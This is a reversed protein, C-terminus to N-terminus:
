ELWEALSVIDNLAHALIFPWLLRTRWFLTGWALGLVLNVIAGTPGQYFHLSARLAASLCVAFAPGSRSLAPLLYGLWLIEEYAGNVISFGVIAGLSVHSRQGIDQLTDGVELALLAKEILALVIWTVAALAVGVVTTAWTPRPFLADMRWGRLRLFLIALGGLAIEAIGNEILVADTFAFDRIVERAGPAGLLLLATPLLGLGITLAVVVAIESAPAMAEIRRRIRSL